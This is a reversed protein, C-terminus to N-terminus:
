LRNQIRNQFQSQQGAQQFIERREDTSLWEPVAIAEEYELLLGDIIEKAKEAKDRPLNKIQLQHEPNKGVLILSAFPGAEALVVRGIDRIPLTEVYSMLIERRIVSITKEQIVLEDPLLELLRSAKVRFLERNKNKASPLNESEYIGPQITDPYPKKRTQTPQNSDRQM